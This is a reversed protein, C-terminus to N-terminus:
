VSQSCNACGERRAQADTEGSGARIRARKKHINEYLSRKKKKGGKGKKKTGYM